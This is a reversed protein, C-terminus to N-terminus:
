VEEEGDMSVGTRRLFLDVIPESVRSIGARGRVISVACGSRMGESLTEVMEASDEKVTLTGEGMAATPGDGFVQLGGTTRM